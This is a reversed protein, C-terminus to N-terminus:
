RCAEYQLSLIREFLWFCTTKLCHNLAKKTGHGVDFLWLDKHGLKMFFKSAIITIDSPYASSITATLKIHFIHFFPDNGVRSHGTLRWFFAM